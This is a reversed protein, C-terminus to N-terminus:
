SVYAAFSKPLLVNIYFEEPKPLLDKEWFEQDYHVCEVTSGKTIYMIFDFWPRGGIAMQGQIQCYYPHHEKLNIEGSSTLVCCLQPDYESTSDRHKVPCKLEAFGYPKCINSPDYVLLVSFPIAPVSTSDWQVYQLNFMDQRTTTKRM